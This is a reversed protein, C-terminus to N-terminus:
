QAVGFIFADSGRAARIGLGFDIGTRYEGAVLVRTEGALALSTPVDTEASGVSRAWRVTGDALFRGYGIDYEGVGLLRRGDVDLYTEFLLAAYVDGDTGVVLRTAADDGPGGFAHADM